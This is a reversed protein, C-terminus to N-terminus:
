RRNANIAHFTNGDRSNQRDTNSITAPRTFYLPGRWGRVLLNVGL